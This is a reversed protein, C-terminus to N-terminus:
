FCYSHVGSGFTSLLFYFLGSRSREASKLYICESRCRQWVGGWQQLSLSIFSNCVAVTPLQQFCLFDLRPSLSNNAASKAHERIPLTGGATSHSLTRFHNIPFPNSTGM